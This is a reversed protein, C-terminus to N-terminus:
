QCTRIPTTGVDGYWIINTKTILRTGFLVPVPSSSDVTTAELNGATPGLPTKPKPQLVYSLVTLAIFIVLQWM